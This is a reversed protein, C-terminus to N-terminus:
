APWRWRPWCSATTPCRRGAPPPIVARRWARWPRPRPWTASPTACNGPCRSTSTRTSRGSRRSGRAPRLRAVVAQVLEEPASAGAIVGVRGPSIEPCSAPRTSGCCGRVAPPPGRHAGAGPHEVLERLRHRRRRRLPGAIAKLASQRNTTAFCLDSTGPVWLDPWRQRAAALLAQWEDVALTTQALFAVPGDPEPLGELESVREIRHVADPAVAATGIAEQHGEHGVYVISYGKGARVKVEHHVKKVLPCVANVVAGGRARAAEVVPPPSGHASLMLPAGEPVETSTTSSCWAWRGSVSWWSQNHVIEHYCYVPPEFVRTRSRLWGCVLGVLLTGGAGGLSIAFSGVKMSLLGILLGIAIGAALFAIDTRDGYRLVEGIKSAAREVDHTAGVLTMVDGMYIVTDPTVPVEQGRRTLDRLFVGRASDGVQDVIETLTRSHLAQNSVLVGLADGLVERLVEAGEIEPGISVGAKVLATAPGALVIEDGSELVMTRSPAVDSGNRDIREVVVRQGVRDEIAAVTQGAATVVRYARAKFKQYGLNGTKPAKGGSLAAELKVAEEKLNIGMLWPAAFPVFLLTLIYGLIYTVAYGAAINAQQQRLVDDPLGLTALAGTATGIMSSQTLSGSALGAATGSDLHFAFAFAIVLALGTISIVVAVGVQSLTRLSLSAFFEPGSKYGITFVFLSFFISKFLPPIVFTGLQGLLVAAVLTCATAGISFGKFQLRGFYTGLAISLLLFIEPATSVMWKITDM